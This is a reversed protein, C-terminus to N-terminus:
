LRRENLGTGARLLLCPVCPFSAHCVQRLSRGYAIIADLSVHSLFRPQPERECATSSYFYNIETACSSDACENGAVFEPQWLFETQHMARFSLLPVWHCNQIVDFFRCHVLQNTPNKKKQHVM